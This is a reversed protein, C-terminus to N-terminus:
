CETAHESGRLTRHPRPLSTEGGVAAAASRWRCGAQLERAAQWVLLM